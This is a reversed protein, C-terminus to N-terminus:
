NLRHPTRFNLPTTLSKIQLLIWILNLHILLILFISRIRHVWEWKINNILLAWLLYIKTQLVTSYISDRLRYTWRLTKSPLVWQFENKSILNNQTPKINSLHVWILNSMSFSIKLLIKILYTKNPRSIRLLMQSMLKILPFTRTGM